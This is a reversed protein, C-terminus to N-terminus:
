SASMTLVWSQSKTRGSQLAPLEGFVELDRVPREVLASLVGSNNSNSSDGSTRSDDAPPVPPWVETM